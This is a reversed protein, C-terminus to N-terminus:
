TAFVELENIRVFGPQRDPGSRCLIRVLRTSQSGVNVTVSLATNGRVSGVTLFTVGNWVQVDFDKIPYGQSTHVVVRRFTKNVGFDAQLWEPNNPPYTGSANAWSYAGGLREDPDCDTAREPSYGGYTSSASATAGCALNEFGTGGDGGRSCVQFEVAGTSYVTYTSEGFLVATNGGDDDRKQITITTKISGGGPVPITIEASVPDGGDVEYWQYGMIEGWAARDWTTIFVDTDQRNDIKRRKVKPFHYTKVMGGGGSVVVLKM